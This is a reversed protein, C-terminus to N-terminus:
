APFGTYYLTETDYGAISGYAAIASSALSLRRPRGQYKQNSPQSIDSM